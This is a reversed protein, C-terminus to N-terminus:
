PWVMCCIGHMAGSLELFLVLPFGGFVLFVGTKGKALCMALCIRWPDPCVPNLRTMWYVITAYVLPTWFKLLLESMFKALYYASVHYM